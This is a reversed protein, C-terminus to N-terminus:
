RWPKRLIADAAEASIFQGRRAQDMAEDIAAEEADSLVYTDDTLDALLDAAAAQKAEPLGRLKDMLHELRDLTKTM